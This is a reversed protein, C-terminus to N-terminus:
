EKAAATTHAHLTDHLRQRSESFCTELQDLLEMAAGRDAVDAKGAHCLDICLQMFQQAGVNAATGKMKHAITYLHEGDPRTHLGDAIQQDFMAVVQPLFGPSNGDLFSLQSLKAEDFLAGGGDKAEAAM